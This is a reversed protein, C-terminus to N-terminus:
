FDAGPSDLSCRAAHRPAPAATCSRAADRGAIPGAAQGAAPPRLAASFGERQVNQQSKSGPQTVVVGVTCGARPRTPWAPASCRRRSAAAASAPLTGAGCFQAVHRRPAAGGGGAIAGDVRALYGRFGDVSM